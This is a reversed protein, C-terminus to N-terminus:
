TSRRSALYSGIAAVTDVWIDSRMSVLRDLLAEFTHLETTYRAVRESVDHGVLVLWHGLRIADDILGDIYTGSKDDISMAPVCALDCYEPSAPTESNFGRGVLFKSAVLPVYSQRRTGRGVFSM